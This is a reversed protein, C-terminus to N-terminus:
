LFIESKKNKIEANSFCDKIFFHFIFYVAVPGRLFGNECVNQLVSGSL